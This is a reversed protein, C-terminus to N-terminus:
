TIVARAPNRDPLFVALGRGYSNTVVWPHTVYTPQRYSTGPRLTRYRVRNGRYDLWYLTVEHSRNNVFEIATAQDNSVSRLGAERSAPLPTLEAPGPAPQSRTPTPQRTTPSTTPRPPANTARPATPEAPRRAPTSRVSNGPTGTPAPAQEAPGPSEVPPASTEGAVVSIGSDIPPPAPRETRDPGGPSEPLLLFTLLVTGLVGFVIGSRAVAPREWWRRELAVPYPDHFPDDADGTLSGAAARGAGAALAACTACHVDTSEGAAGPPHKPGTEPGAPPSVWGGIRLDAGADGENAGRESSGPSGAMAGAKSQRTDDLDRCLPGIISSRCEETDVSSVQRDARYRRPGAARERKRRRVSRRRRAGRVLAGVLM